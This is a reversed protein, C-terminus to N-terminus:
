EDRKAEKDHEPDTNSILKWVSKNTKGDWYLFWIAGSADLAHVTDDPGVAIQIVKYM